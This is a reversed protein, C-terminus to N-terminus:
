QIEWSNYGWYADRAGPELEFGWTIGVIYCYGFCVEMGDKSERAELREMLIMNKM